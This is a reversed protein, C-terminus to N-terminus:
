SCGPFRRRVRRFITSSPMIALLSQILTLEEHLLRVGRMSVMAPEGLSGDRAMQRSLILFSLDDVYVRHRKCTKQCPVLVEGNLDGLRALIM